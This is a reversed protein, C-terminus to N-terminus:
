KKVPLSPTPTAGETPFIDIRAEPPLKIVAKKWSSTKIEIRKRGARKTKGKVIMTRVRLVKVKFQEEVTKKIDEKRSKKNVEFTYFGKATLSLSKETVIPRIIIDTSEM